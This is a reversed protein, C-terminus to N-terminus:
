RRMRANKEILDTWDSYALVRSPMGHIKMRVSNGSIMPLRTKPPTISTGDPPTGYKMKKVVPCSAHFQKSPGSTRPLRPM